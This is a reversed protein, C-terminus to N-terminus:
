ISAILEWCSEAVMGNSYMKVEIECSVGHGKGFRSKLILIEVCSGM